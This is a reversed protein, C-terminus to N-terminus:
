FLSAQILKQPLPHIINIVPTPTSIEIIKAPHTSEKPETLYEYCENIGIPAIGMLTDALYVRYGGFIKMALTDMHIVIGRMGYMFFNLVCMNVCRRDMDQGVYFANFRNNPHLRSHAILNRGSGCACDNVTIGNECEESGGTLRAMMDCVTPPTFFQGSNSATFSSNTEEFVNGLLDVWSGDNCMGNTYENVMEALAQCFLMMEEPNYKSAINLYVEEMRRMSFACIAMQMFDDFVNTFHHRGAIKQLTKTLGLFETKSKAM